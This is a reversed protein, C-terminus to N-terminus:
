LRLPQVNRPQVLENAGFCILDDRQNTPLLVNPVYFSKPDCDKIEISFLQNALAALSGAAHFLHFPGFRVSFLVINAAVAQLCNWLTAESFHARRDHKTKNYAEYWPLTKTPSTLNWGLFPRIPPIDTYRPLSIEFEALFLPSGLGVYNKTTFQGSAPTHVDAIRLYHKWINEVETCALILLERVKHSHTNMAGSAPEVFYLLEDLRQVLLLLAQEALRLEVNTAGLGQLIEETFYLGPRWVGEITCGVDNETEEVAQAGFTREVWDRLSGSKKETVTLGPSIVWLGRDKGYHHVFHTHTEYAVGRPEKEHLPVWRPITHKTNRYVLARM